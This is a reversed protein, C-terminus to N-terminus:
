MRFVRVKFPFTHPDAKHKPYFNRKMVLSTKTYKPQRVHWAWYFLFSIHELTVVLLTNTHINADRHQDYTHQSSM